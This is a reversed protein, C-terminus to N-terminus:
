SPPRRFTVGPGSRRERIGAARIVGLALYVRVHASDDTVDARLLGGDDQQFAEPTEFIPPVVGGPGGDQSSVPFEVGDPPRSLKVGQLGRQPALSQRSVTPDPM